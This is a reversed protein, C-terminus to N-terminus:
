APEFVAYLAVDSILNLEIFQTGGAEFTRVIIDTPSCSWHKFQYDNHPTAAFGAVEGYDWTTDGPDSVDGGGDAVGDSSVAEMFVTVTTPTPPPPPATPYFLAYLEVDSNLKLNAIQTNGDVATSILAEPPSCYWQNFAYGDLLHPIASVSISAGGDFVTYGPDSVDGGGDAVGDSSVAEMYLTVSAPPPTTGSFHVVINVARDPMPTILTVFGPHSADLGPLPTGYDKGTGGGIDLGEFYEFDPYTNKDVIIIVEREVIQDGTFSDTLETWNDGNMATVTSATQFKGNGEVSITLNGTKVGSPLWTAIGAIKIPDKWVVGGLLITVYGDKEGSATGPMTWDFILDKKEDPKVTFPGQSTATGIPTGNLEAPQFKITISKDETSKSTVSVKTKVAGGTGAPAKSGAQNVKFDTVPVKITFFTKYFTSNDPTTNPTKEAPTKWWLSVVLSLGNDKDAEGTVDWDFEFDYKGKAPITGTLAIDNTIETGVGLPIGANYHIRYVLTVNQPADCVTSVPVHIHVKSGIKGFTPTVIPKGFSFGVAKAATMVGFCNEKDIEDKTRKGDILVSALVERQAIGSNIFDDNSYTAIHKVSFVVKEGAKVTAVTATKEEIKTGMIYPFAFNRGKYIGFLVSCKLDTKTNNTVEASITVAEGVAANGPEAVLNAITLKGQNGAYKNYLYWAGYGLGGVAVAGVVIAIITGTSGGGGGQFIIPQQQPQYQPQRNEM